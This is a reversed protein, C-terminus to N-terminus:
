WSYRMGAAVGHDQSRAAIDGTYDVLFAWAGSRHAMVGLNLQLHDRGAEPGRVTFTGAELTNAFSNTFHGSNSNFAHQLLVRAHPTWSAPTGSETTTLTFTKAVQLGAGIRSDLVQGAHVSLAISPDSANDQFDVSPLRVLDVTPLIPQWLWGQQDQLNWGHELHLSFASGTNRAQAQASFPLQSASLDVSRTASSNLHTIGAFADVYHRENTYRLYLRGDIANAQGRYGNDAGNVNQTGYGLAAGWIMHENARLDLGLMLGASDQRWASMQDQGNLHGYHGFVRGWLNVDKNAAGSKAAADDGGGDGGLYSLVGAADVARGPNGSNLPIAAATAATVQQEASRDPASLHQTLATSFDNILYLAASRQAAYGAGEIQQRVHTAQANTSFQLAGLLPSLASSDQRSANSLATGLDCGARNCLAHKGLFADDATLTIGKDQQLHYSILSDAFPQFAIKQADDATPDIDYGAVPNGQADARVLHTFQSPAFNQELLYAKTSLMKEYEALKAATLSQFAAPNNSRLWGLWTTLEGKLLAYVKGTPYFGPKINLALSSRPSILLFGGRYFQFDGLYSGSNKDSPVITSEFRLPARTQDPKVDLALTADDLNVQTSSFNKGSGDGPRGTVELDGTAHLVAGQRLWLQPTNTNKSYMQGIYGSGELVGGSGIYNQVVNLTGGDLLLRGNQIMLSDAAGQENKHLSWTAGNTVSIVGYANEISQAGADILTGASDITALDKSLRSNPDKLFGLIQATTYSRIFANLVLRKVTSKTGVPDDNYVSRLEDQQSAQKFFGDGSISIGYNLLLKEFPTFPDRAGPNDLNSYNPNINGSVDKSIVLTDNTTEPKRQTIFSTNYVDNQPYARYQDPKSCDSHCWYIGPNKGSAPDWIRAFSAGHDSFADKVLTNDQGTTGLGKVFFEYWDKQTKADAYADGMSVGHIGIFQGVSDSVPTHAMWPQDNDAFARQAGGILMGSCSSICYGSAVTKLGWRRAMDAIAYGSFTAGGNSNRLVLTDIKRGSERLRGLMDAFLDGDNVTVDGSLIIQNGNVHMNMADAHPAITTLGLAGLIAAVLQRQKLFSQWPLHPFYNKRSSTSAIAPQLAMAPTVGNKQLHFEELRREVVSQLRIKPM